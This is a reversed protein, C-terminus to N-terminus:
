GAQQQKFLYNLYGLPTYYLPQNNPGLVPSANSDFVQVGSDREEVDAIAMSALQKHVFTKWVEEHAGTEPNETYSVLGLSKLREIRSQLGTQVVQDLTKDACEAYASLINIDKGAIFEDWSMTPKTTYETYEM